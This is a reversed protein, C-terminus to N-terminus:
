NLTTTHLSVQVKPQLRTEQEGIKLTWYTPGDHACQSLTVESELQLVLCGDAARNDRIQKAVLFTSTKNKTFYSVKGEEAGYFGIAAGTTGDESVLRATAFVVVNVDQGDKSNQRQAFAASSVLLATLIIWKM